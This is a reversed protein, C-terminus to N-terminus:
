RLRGALDTVSVTAGVTRVADTTFNSKQNWLMWGLGLSEAAEIQARVETPGYGGYDQLWPRITTGMGGIRAIANSMSGQIVVGPQEAPTDLEFSGSAWGVPYVMPSVVDVVQALEEIQQGIGSDGQDITTIGFVDVAIACSEDVSASVTALFSTIAEIRSAEDSAGDFEIAGEFTHFGDPFRIFDFQVEDVGAECAEVALELAYTRAEADTPDLFTLGRRTFPETTGSVRAALEPSHRAVIPDEFAAIRGVVTLDRSHLDAVVATLDWSQTAAGARHALDSETRPWVLGGADKIDLVFANVSTEAALELLEEWRPTGVLDGKVRIGRIIPRALKIELHDRDGRWTGTHRGINPHSAEIAFPPDEQVNLTARGFANTEGTDGGGTVLAGRLPDGRGDVVFVDVAVGVGDSDPGLAGSAEVPGVSPVEGLVAPDAGLSDVIGEAIGRAIVSIRDSTGLLSSRLDAAEEPNSLASVEVLVTPPQALMLLALSRKDQRVGTIDNTGLVARRLGKSDDGTIGNALAASEDSYLVTSINASVDGLADAHISVAIDVGSHNIIFARSGLSLTDNECRTMIVRAGQSILHDKVELAVSLNVTSEFLGSQGDLYNVAGPDFGGHGPDLAIAKGALAGNPRPEFTCSTDDTGFGNAYQTVYLISLRAGRATATRSGNGGDSLQVLMVPDVGSGFRAVEHFVGPGEVSFSTLGFQENFADAAWSTTDRQLFRDLFTRDSSGMAGLLRGLEAIDTATTVMPESRLSTSRIGAWHLVQELRDTGLTDIIAAAAAESGSDVALDIATRLDGDRLAARTAHLERTLLWPRTSVPTADSALGEDILTQAAFAIAMAELGGPDFFSDVEVGTEVDGAWNFAYAFRGEVNRAQRAFLAKLDDTADIPFAGSQVAGDIAVQGAPDHPPPSAVGLATLAVAVRDLGAGGDPQRTLGVRKSSETASTRSREALSALADQPHALGAESSFSRYFQIWETVDDVYAERNNYDLLAARLAEPSDTYDSPAGSCLHEVTALSADFINQPDAVGDGSGDLGFALWSQPIFQGPGLARDYAADGDLSGGDTDEIVLVGQKGNLQVGFIPPDVEGSLGVQRGDITGHLSEVRYIGAVVPWDLVCSDGFTEAAYAEAAKYAQLAVEGMTSPSTLATPWLTAKVAEITPAVSTPPGSGDALLEAVVPMEAPVNTVAQVKSAQDVLDALSVNREIATARLGDDVAQFLRNMMEEVLPQANPTQLLYEGPYLMRELTDTEWPTGDLGAWTPDRVLDQFEQVDVGANGLATVLDGLTTGPEVSLTLPFRGRAEAVALIETELGMPSRDRGDDVLGPAQSLVAGFFVLLIIVFAFMTTPNGTDDVRARTPDQRRDM